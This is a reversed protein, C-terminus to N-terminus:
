QLVLHSRRNQKWCWHSSVGCVPREEGYSVVRIRTEPVGLDVLYSKVARARREGLVLNYEFSGREDCHGEVLVVKEAFSTQMLAANSELYPVADSRIRAQDFDFSVDQLEKFQPGAPIIEPEEVLVMPPVDPIFPEPEPLMPMEPEMLVPPEPEPIPEFVLMPPAEAPAASALPPSEPLIPPEPLRSPVPPFEPIIEQVVVPADEEMSENVFSDEDGMGVRMSTSSCATCVCLLGIIGIMKVHTMLRLGGQVIQPHKFTRM